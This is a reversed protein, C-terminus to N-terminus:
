KVLCSEPLVALFDGQVHFDDSDVKIVRNTGDEYRLEWNGNNDRCVRKLTSHKGIRVIQISGECPVESKRILIISGDPIGAECMSEGRVRAAYCEFIDGRALAASIEAREDPFDRQEIPPGAAVDNVFPIKVRSGYEPEDESLEFSSDDINISYRTLVTDEIRKLRSELNEFKAIKLEMTKEILDEIAGVIPSPYTQETNDSDRVFMDGEGTLFWNMSVGFQEHLKPLVSIAVAKGEEWGVITSRPIGLSRAFSAINLGISDRIKRIRSSYDQEM